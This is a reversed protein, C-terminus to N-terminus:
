SESVFHELQFITSFGTIFNSFSYERVYFSFLLSLFSDDSLSPDSVPCASQRQSCCCLMAFIVWEAERDLKIVVSHKRSKFILAHVASPGQTTYPINERFYRMTNKFSSDDVFEDLM